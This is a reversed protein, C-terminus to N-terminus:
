HELGDVLLTKNDLNSGPGANKIGCKASANM